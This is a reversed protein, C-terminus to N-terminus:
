NGPYFMTVYKSATDYTLDFDNVIEELIKSQPQGKKGHSIIFSKLLQEIGREIGQEIGQEIGEEKKIELLDYYTLTDHIMDVVDGKENLFNSLLCGPSKYKEVVADIKNVKEQGHLGKVGADIEQTLQIFERLIGSANKIDIVKVTLELSGAPLLFADSLCMSAPCAGTGTYVVYFAPAPIKVLKGKFLSKDRGGSFFRKYEEAIYLLLRTPMNYSITSQHETLVVLINKFLMCADNYCDVTFINELNLIEIDDETVPERDPFLSEYLLMAYRKDKFLSTFLTDKYKRNYTDETPSTFLKKATPIGTGSGHPANTNRNHPQM